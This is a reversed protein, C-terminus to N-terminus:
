SNRKEDFKRQQQLPVQVMLARAEDDFLWQEHELLYHLQFEFLQEDFVFPREYSVTYHLGLFPIARQEAVQQVSALYSLKDDIFIIKTPNWQIKHLFAELAEGKSHVHTFLVGDKFVPAFGDREMESFDLTGPWPASFSFDIGVGLLGSLRWEEMNKIVGFAGTQMASLAMIRAATKQLNKIVSSACYEVPERWDDLFIISLLRARQEKGILTDLRKKIQERYPKNNPHFFSRKALLLVDGVDFLILSTADLPSVLNELDQFSPLPHITSLIQNM